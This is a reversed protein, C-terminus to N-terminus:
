DRRGGGALRLLINLAAVFINFVGAFLALAGPIPSDADPSQLVASTSSILGIVGMIGIGASILIGLLGINLFSNLIIAGTIAVFMGIMIGRPASYTRGSFFIFGTIGLFVMLTIGLAATILSADIRAAVWLIPSLVLGSLFGNFVLAGMGLFPNHRCAMALLPIANLGVIALIWGIWGSFFRAM